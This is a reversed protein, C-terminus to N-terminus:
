YDKDKDKDKNENIPYIILTLFVLYHCMHNICYVYFM